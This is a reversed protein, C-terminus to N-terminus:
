IGLQEDYLKDYKQYNLYSLFCRMNYRYGSLHEVFFDKRKMTKLAKADPRHFLARGNGHEMEAGDHANFDCGLLNKTTALYASGYAEHITDCIYFHKKYPTLKQDSMTNSFVYPNDGFKMVSDFEIISDKPTNFRVIRNNIDVERDDAIAVQDLRHPHLSVFEDLYPLWRQINKTHLVQDSDTLYVYEYGREIAIERLQVSSLCTLNTHSLPKNLKVYEVKNAVSRTYDLDEDFAYFLLVKDVKDVLSEVTLRLFLECEEKKTTGGTGLREKSFSHYTAALIKSLVCVGIIQHRHSSEFRWARALLPNQTRRTYWEM